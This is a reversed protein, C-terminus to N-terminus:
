LDIYKQNGNFVMNNVIKTFLTNNMIVADTVKGSLLSDHESGYEDNDKMVFHIIDCSISLASNNNSLRNGVFAIDKVDFVTTAPVGYPHLVNDSKSLFIGCVTNDRIDNGEVCVHRTKGSFQLFVGYKNSSLINHHLKLTDLFWDCSFGANANNMVINNSFITQKCGRAAIGNNRGDRVINNAIIQKSGGTMPTYQTMFLNQDEIFIGNNGCGVCICNSIVFNEEEHRGMGIGIGSGGHAYSAEESWCRGGEIVSVSLIEVRNLFDIGLSTAPTGMLCLNKFSCDELNTLYFAKGNSATYSQPTVVMNYGDVSFDKFNAYKISDGIFLNYPNDGNMMILVSVGQGKGEISVCSRLKVSNKFKYNCEPLIITGGGAISVIDVLNSLFESNDDESPNLYLESHFEGNSPLEGEVYAININVYQKEIYQQSSKINGKITDGKNVLFEQKGKYGYSDILEGNSNYVRIYIDGLAQPINVICRNPALYNFKYKGDWTDFEDDDTYYGENLESQLTNRVLQVKQELLVRAGGSSLNQFDAGDENIYHIRKTYDDNYFDICKAYNTTHEEKINEIKDQKNELESKTALGSIDQHETLVDKGNSKVDKANLGNEDLHFVENGNNDEISISDEESEIFEKSIKDTRSSVLTLKNDLKSIKDDVNQWDTKNTSFTQTMLRYQVYKNDSSQESGQIFRITIGGIRASTPILTNLDSRSLLAQLSEFVASNNHASVDFIIAQEAAEARNKEAEIATTTAKQSMVSNEDDGSEQLISTKNIKSGQLEDIADQANEANLGSNDNNYTVNNATSAGGTIAIGQVTKSLSEHKNNLTNHRSNIDQIEKEVTQMDGKLFIQNAACLKGKKTKVEIEDTLNISM